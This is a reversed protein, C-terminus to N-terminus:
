TTPLTDQSLETSGDLYSRLEGVTLPQVNLKTLRAALKCFRGCHLNRTILTVGHEDAHVIKVVTRSKCTFCVWHEGKLVDIGAALAHAILSHAGKRMDVPTTIFCIKGSAFLTSEM